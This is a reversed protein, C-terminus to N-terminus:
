PYKDGPDVSIPRTQEGLYRLLNRPQELADFPELEYVHWVYGVCLSVVAGRVVRGESSPITFREGDFPGGDFHGPIV